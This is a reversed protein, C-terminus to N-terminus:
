VLIMLWSTKLSKHGKLGENLEGVQYLLNGEHSDVEGAVKSFKMFKFLYPSM